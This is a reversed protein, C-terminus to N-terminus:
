LQIGILDNVILKIREKKIERNSLLFIYSGFILLYYNRFYVTAIITVIILVCILIKLSMGYINIGKKYGYIKVLLIRVIRGGDLPYIPMMNTIFIILNMMSFNFNPLLVALMFSVFPGASAIILEKDCSINEGYQANIGVSLLAIEKIKVKLLLASVVHALEHLVAFGYFIFFYELKNVVFLYLSFIILSCHIKITM